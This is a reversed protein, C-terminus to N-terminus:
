FATVESITLDKGFDTVFKAEVTAKIQAIANSMPDTSQSAYRNSLLNRAARRAMESIAERTIELGDDDRSSSGFALVDSWLQLLQEAAVLDNLISWDYSWGEDRNAVRETASAHATLASEINWRAYALTHDEGEKPAIAPLKAAATALREIITTTTDTDTM